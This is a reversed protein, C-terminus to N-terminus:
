KLGDLQSLTSIISIRKEPIIRLVRSGGGGKYWHNGAEIMHM